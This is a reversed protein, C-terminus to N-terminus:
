EEDKEDRSQSENRIWSAIDIVNGDEEHTPPAEVPAEEEDPEFITDASRIIEEPTMTDGGSIRAYLLKVIGEQLQIVELENQKDRKTDQLWGHLVNLFQLMLEKDSTTFTSDM